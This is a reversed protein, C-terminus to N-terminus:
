HRPMEKGCSIQNQASAIGPTTTGMVLMVHPGLRLNLRWMAIYGEKYNIYNEALTSSTGFSPLAIVSNRSTSNSRLQAWSLQAPCSEVVVDAPYPRCPLM